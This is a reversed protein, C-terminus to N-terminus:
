TPQVDLHWLLLCVPDSASATDTPRVAAELAERAPMHVGVHLLTRLHGLAAQSWRLLSVYLYSHALSINALETPLLIAPVPQM